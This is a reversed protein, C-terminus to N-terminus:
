GKDVLKFIINLDDKGRDLYLAQMGMDLPAQVDSSFNDGIMLAEEAVLGFHDLAKNYIQPSPKAAGAEESSLVYDFKDKIGLSSALDHISDDFNSILATKYGMDRVKDLVEITDPYLVWEGHSLGVVYEHVTQGNNRAHGRHKGSEIAEVTMLTGVADFFIAKIM